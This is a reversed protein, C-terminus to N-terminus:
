SNKRRRNRDASVKCADNERIEQHIPANKKLILPQTIHATGPCNPGLHMTLQRLGGDKENVHM